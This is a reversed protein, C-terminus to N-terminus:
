GKITSGVIVKKNKNNREHINRQKYLNKQRKSLNFSDKVKKKTYIGKFAQILHFFCTICIGKAKDMVQKLAYSLAMCRRRKGM